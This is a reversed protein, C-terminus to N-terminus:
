IKKSEVKNLDNFNMLDRPLKELYSVIATFPKVLDLVRHNEITCPLYITLFLSAIM